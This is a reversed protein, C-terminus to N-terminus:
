IHINKFYNNKNDNTVCGTDNLRGGIPWAMGRPVWMSGVQSSLWRARLLVLTTNCGSCVLHPGSWIWVSYKFREIVKNFFCIPGHFILEILEMHKPEREVKKIESFDSREIKELKKFIPLVCRVSVCLSNLQNKSRGRM